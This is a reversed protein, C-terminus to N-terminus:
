CICVCLYYVSACVDLVGILIVSWHRITVCMVNWVFHVGRVFLLHKLGSGVKDRLQRRLTTVDCRGNVAAFEAIPKSGGKRVPMTMLHLQLNAVNAMLRRATELPAAARQMAKLTTVSINRQTLFKPFASTIATVTTDLQQLQASKSRHAADDFGLLLLLVQVSQQPWELPFVIFRQAIDALSKEPPESLLSLRKSAVTSTVLFRRLWCAISDHTAVASDSDLQKTFCLHRPVNNDNAHVVTSHVVENIADGVIAVFLTNDSDVFSEPNVGAGYYLKFEVGETQDSKWVSETKCKASVDSSCLLLSVSKTNKDISMVKAMAKILPQPGGAYGLRWGTMAYAKSVGNITLCRSKFSPDVAAPTAFEFGDYLIHEYMDDAMVWVDPFSRLEELLPAYHKAGYAAGSPNCPSNFLVWRTRDSLAGRLQERTMRFGNEEACPVQVVRGGALSIMDAYSTWFPVPVVVEDGPELSAMFANYIVQKAGSSVIIEDRDYELGHDRKFKRQIADKLAPTGTLATYKTEGARIAAVAAEKIPEPTDFDPEGAGLVIVPRGQRQLQAARAGIQLIESVEISDIRSAKCFRSM